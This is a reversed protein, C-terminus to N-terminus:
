IFQILQQLVAAEHVLDLGRGHALVHDVEDRLELTERLGVHLVADELVEGDELHSISQGLLLSRM